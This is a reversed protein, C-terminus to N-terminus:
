ALALVSYVLRFLPAIRQQGYLNWRDCRVKSPDITERKRSRRPSVNM